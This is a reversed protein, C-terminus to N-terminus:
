KLNESIRIPNSVRFNGKKRAFRKQKINNESISLNAERSYRKITEKLKQSYDPGSYSKPRLTQESLHIMVIQCSLVKILYKLSGM